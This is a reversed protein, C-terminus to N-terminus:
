GTLFMPAPRNEAGVIHVIAADMAVVCSSQKPAYFSKAVAQFIDGAPRLTDLVKNSSDTDVGRMRQGTHDFARPKGCMTHRFGVQIGFCRFPVSGAIVRHPGALTEGPRLPL